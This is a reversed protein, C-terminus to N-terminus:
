CKIKFLTEYTVYYAYKTTHKTLVVKIRLFLFMKKNFIHCQHRIPWNVNMCM